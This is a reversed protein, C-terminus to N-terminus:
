RRQWLASAALAVARHDLLRHQTRQLLATFHAACLGVMRRRARQRGWVARRRRYFQLVAAARRLLTMWFGWANLRPFAMDRTGIMLPVLYIGFGFLVPMAVFFIM